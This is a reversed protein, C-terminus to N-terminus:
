VLQISDGRRLHGPAVVSALVGINARNHRAATRLIGTDRPLDGQPLTTMICRGCPKDIRLRVDGIAVTRGIWANELFDSGETEVLLNPRFRAVDFAGEPYLQKLRALTATTLIHIPRSDFFGNAALDFSFIQQHDPHDPDFGVMEITREAVSDSVLRAERGMAATLRAHIDPSDTLLSSGDPFTIRAAGNALESRFRFMLPWKHAAKASVIKNDAPDFIAFSRDGPLGRQTVDAAALEEGLMSKVPYRFLQAIRVLAM